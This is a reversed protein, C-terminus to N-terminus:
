VSGIFARFERVVTRTSRGAVVTENEVQAQNAQGLFGPVNIDKANRGVYKVSQNRIQKLRDTRGQKIEISSESCETELLRMVM